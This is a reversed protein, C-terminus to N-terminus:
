QASLKRCLKGLLGMSPGAKSRAISKLWSKNIHEYANPGAYYKQSAAAVQM